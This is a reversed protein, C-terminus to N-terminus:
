VIPSNYKLCCCDTPVRREWLGGGEAGGKEEKERKVTPQLGSACIYLDCHDVNEDQWCLCEYAQNENM